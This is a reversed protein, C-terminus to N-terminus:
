SHNTFWSELMKTTSQGCSSTSSQRLSLLDKQLSCVRKNNQVIASGLLVGHLCLRQPESAASWWRQLFREHLRPRWQETKSETPWFWPFWRQLNRQRAKRQLTCPVSSHASFHGTGVTDFKLIWFKRCLGHSSRFFLRQVFDHLHQLWRWVSRFGWIKRNWEGGVVNWFLAFLQNHKNGRAFAFLCEAGLQWM